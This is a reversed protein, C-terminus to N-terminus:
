DFLANIDENVGKNMQSVLYNTEAEDCDPCMEQNTVASIIQIPIGNDDTYRRFGSNCHGCVTYGIVVQHLAIDCEAVDGCMPCDNKDTM